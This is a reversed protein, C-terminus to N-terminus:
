LEDLLKELLAFGQESVIEKAEPSLEREIRKQLYNCKAKAENCIKVADPKLYDRTVMIEANLATVLVHIRRLSRLIENREM